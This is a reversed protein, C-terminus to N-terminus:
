GPMRGNDMLHIFEDFLYDADHPGPAAEPHYQVSFASLAPYRLGESTRDNLNEHVTEREGTLSEPLVVFGHNQSTIEVRGNRCNKVPQNIGHHGFKLKATRGGAAQGLIQHGLCIGFIPVKGLITRVADVIYPLVAPDGPGNSLLVGDPRLALIEEGSATAPLVRVECGRKALNRLINYKVGCDLVVVRRRVRRDAHGGEAMERPAGDKWLYPQRCTVTKVLDRGILGPYARVRRLLQDIEEPATSLVGRMAGTMRIRRTLARTDIGEVGLKGHRELFAQLSERSRWNSPYGEYERVIFGELHIGASEMDEPNIGTNGILPYTMAVIQGKYSPDTLIEQYGTMGTNFVVEGLVEGKGAFVNGRYVSGDELVLLAKKRGKGFM